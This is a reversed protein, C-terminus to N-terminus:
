QTDKLTTDNVSHSTRSALHLSPTSTRLLKSSPPAPLAKWQRTMLWVIACSGYAILYQWFTPLLEQPGLLLPIALLSSSLHYHQLGSWETALQGLLLNTLSIHDQGQASVQIPPECLSFVPLITQYPSRPAPLVPHRANCGHINAMAWLDTCQFLIWSAYSRSSSPNGCRRSKQNILLQEFFLRYAHMPWLPTIAGFYKKQLLPQWWHVCHWVDLEAQKLTEIHFLGGQKRGESTGWCLYCGLCLVV